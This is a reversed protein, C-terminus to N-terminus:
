LLFLLNKGREAVDFYLICSLWIQEFKQFLSFKGPMLILIGLGYALMMVGDIIASTFAHIQASSM